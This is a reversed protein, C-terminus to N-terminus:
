NGSCMSARGGGARSLWDRDGSFEMPTGLVAMPVGPSGEAETETGGGAVETTTWAGVVLRGV